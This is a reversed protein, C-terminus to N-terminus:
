YKQENEEESEELENFLEILEEYEEITDIRDKNEFLEEIFYEGLYASYDKYNTSVLNGYGNYTFYDRNPNFERYEKEGHSDTIWSDADYGFYVRQLLEMPEVNNYFENLLEMEYYRDDNLFGNWADLEEICADFAAENEEFWEIIKKINERKM